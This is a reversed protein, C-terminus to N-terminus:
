KFQLHGDQNLQSNQQMFEFFEIDGNGFYYTTLTSGTNCYAYNNDIAFPGYDMVSNITIILNCYSRAYGNKGMNYQISTVKEDQGLTITITDYGGEGGFRQGNVAISDLIYGTNVTITHVLVWIINM